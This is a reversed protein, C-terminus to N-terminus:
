IGQLIPRSFAVLLNITVSITLLIIGLALAFALNGKSTELAITTTMVRTFGYINGGVILVAGVESIARGFAALCVVTLGGRCEWMLIRVRGLFSLCLSDFLEQYHKYREEILQISLSLTIPFIVITQAAIMAAPTYLLGLFGLPSARSLALYVVLGAFVPPLAMFAHLFGVIYHRGRFRSIALM